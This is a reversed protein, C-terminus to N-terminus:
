NVVLEITNCSAINVTYEKILTTKNATFIKVKLAGKPMGMFVQPELADINDTDDNVYNNATMEVAIEQNRKNNIVLDGWGANECAAPSVKGMNPRQANNPILIGIEADAEKGLLKVFYDYDVWCFGGDAWDTGWSNVIKFARRNDDYGVIAMAHAGEDKGRARSWIKGAKLNMFGQDIPVGFWLPFGSYIWDKLEEIDNYEGEALRYYGVIKNVTAQSIQTTNTVSCNPSEVFPMQNWSPTGVTKLLEAVGIIGNADDNFLFCGEDCDTDKNVKKYIAYIFEPSPIKDYNKTTVGNYMGLIYYAGSFAVCKSTEGQSIIPPTNLSFSAPLNSIFDEDLDAEAASEHAGASSKKLGTPFDISPDIEDEDATTKCGLALLLLSSLLLNKYYM